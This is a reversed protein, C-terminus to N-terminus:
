TEQASQHMKMVPPCVFLVSIDLFITWRQQNTMQGKFIQGCDGFNVALRKGIAREGLQAFLSHPAVIFPLYNTRVVGQVDTNELFM